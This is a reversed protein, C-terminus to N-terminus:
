IEGSSRLASVRREAKDYINEHPGVIVVVCVTEDDVVAYVARFAGSGKVNFSLSRLGGLIGSLPHGATADSELTNLARLVAALHPRVHM